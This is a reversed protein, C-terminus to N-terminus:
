CGQHPLLGIEVGQHVVTRAGTRPDLVEAQVEWYTTRPATAALSASYGSMPKSNHCVPASVAVQYDWLGDRNIDVTLTQAAPETFSSLSSLTKEIAFQAATLAEDEAQMNGVIRISSHTSSVSSVALMSLVVLMILATVLAIGQQDPKEITM